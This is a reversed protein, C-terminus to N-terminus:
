QSFSTLTNYAIASFLIIFGITVTMGGIWLNRVYVPSLDLRSVGILRRLITLVTFVSVVVFLALFLWPQRGLNAIAISWGVLFAALVVYFWPRKNASFDVLRAKQEVSLSALGRSVLYKHAAFCLLSLILAYTVM